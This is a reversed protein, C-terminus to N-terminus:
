EGFRIDKSPIQIEITAPNTNTLSIEWGHAKVISQIISLGLGGKEKTSFSDKFFRNHYAEPIPEGDNMILLSYGDSEKRVTIEIRSAKGHEGSNQMLNQMVQVMKARDCNLLPINGLKM